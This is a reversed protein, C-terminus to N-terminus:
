IKRKKTKKDFEAIKLGRKEPLTYQLFAVCQARKLKQKVIRLARTNIRSEASQQFCGYNVKMPMFVVWIGNGKSQQGAGNRNLAASKQM